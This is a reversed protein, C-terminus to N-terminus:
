KYLVLPVFDNVVLITEMVLRALENSTNKTHVDISLLLVPLCFLLLLLGLLKGLSIANKM